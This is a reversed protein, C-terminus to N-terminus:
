YDSLEAETAPKARLEEMEKMVQGEPAQDLLDLLLDLRKGPFSKALHELKSDQETWIEELRLSPASTAQNQVQPIKTRTPQSKNVCSLSVVTIVFVCFYTGVKLAIIKM